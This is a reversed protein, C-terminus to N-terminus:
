WITLILHHRYLVNPSQSSLCHMVASEIIDSCRGMPWFDAKASFIWVCFTNNLSSTQCYNLQM